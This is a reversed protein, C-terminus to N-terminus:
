DIGEVQKSVMGWCYVVATRDISCTVGSFLFSSAIQEVPGPLAIEVPESVFQRNNIDGTFAAAGGWCIVKGNMRVAYAHALGSTVDRLLEGALLHMPQTPETVSSGVASLFKPGWCVLGPERPIVCGHFGTGITVANEIGPVLSPLRNKEPQGQGLEGLKGSGWCAVRGDDGLACAYSSGAKVAVSRFALTVVTVPRSSVM